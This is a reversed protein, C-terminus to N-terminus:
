NVILEGCLKHVKINYLPWDAEPTSTSESLLARFKKKIQAPWPCQNEKIWSIPVAEVSSDKLFEVVCFKKDSSTVEM